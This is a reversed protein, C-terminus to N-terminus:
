NTHNRANTEDNVEDTEPPYEGDRWIKGDLDIFLGCDHCLYGDDVFALPFGCDHCKGWTCGDVRQGTADVQVVGVPFLYFGPAWLFVPNDDQIFPPQGIYCAVQGILRGGMKFVDWIGLGSLGVEAASRDRLTKIADM